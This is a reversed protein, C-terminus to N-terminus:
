AEWGPWQEDVARRRTRVVAHHWRLLRALDDGAAGVMAVVILRELLRCDAHSTLPLGAVRHTPAIWPAQRNWGHLVSCFVLDPGSM